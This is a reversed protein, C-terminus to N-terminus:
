GGLLAAIREAGVAAAADWTFREAMDRAAATGLPRVSEFDDVVRRMLTRLHAFDPEAWDGFAFRPIPCRVLTHDLLLANGPHAYATPGSWDTVITPLGSAMAETIPLGWGEGRTPMVFADCSRYLRAMEARSAVWNVRRVQRERGRLVQQLLREDKENDPRCSLVLVAEDGSFEAAFAEVLEISCKRNEFKGVTLFKVRPDASIATFTDGAPHFLGTDVGEPVIDVAPAPIGNEVLVDRGWATPTWIRDVGNLIPRWHEHIRTTEWALFGIRPGPFLKGTEWMDPAGIAISVVPRGAAHRTLIDGATRRMAAANPTFPCGVVEMRKALATGFARAHEGFGGEFDFHGILVVLPNM